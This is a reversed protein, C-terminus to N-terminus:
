FLVITLRYDLSQTKDSMCYLVTRCAAYVVDVYMRTSYTIPWQAM